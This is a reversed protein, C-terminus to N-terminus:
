KMSTLPLSADEDGATKEHESYRDFLVLIYKTSDILDARLWRQVAIEDQKKLSDFIHEHYSVGVTPSRDLSQRFMIHYYPSVRDWIQNIIDLLMPSNAQEYILFHFNRNTELLHNTQAGKRAKAFDAQAKALRFLFEENVRLAAKAAAQPELLIRIESAEKLNERSLENVVSGWKPRTSILGRAALRGMAERVPIRSVDMMRSVEETVIKQGPPIKGSLIAKELEKYVIEQVSRNQVKPLITQRERPGAKKENESDKRQAQRLGPL